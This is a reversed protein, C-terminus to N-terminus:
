GRRFYAFRYVGMMFTFLIVGTLVVVAGTPLSFINALPLGALMILIAFLVSRFVAGRFSRSVLKAASAPIVMLAGVLMVGFIKLGLVITVVLTLYFLLELKEVNIGAVKATARDFTILALHKSTQWLFVGVALAIAVTLLMDNTSVAGIDGFLFTELSELEKGSRSMLLIGIALSSTFLLTIITDVPLNTRRELYFIAFGVLMAFALATYLPNAKLLVGIAIGALSAHAIGDAVFSMKKMVVFIGLWALVAALLVGTAIPALFTPTFFWM